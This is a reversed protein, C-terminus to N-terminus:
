LWFSSFSCKQFARLSSIKFIKIEFITQNTFSIFDNSLCEDYFFKQNKDNIFYSYYHQTKCNKCLVNKNVCPRTLNSAFYVFANFDQTNDHILENNCTKCYILSTKFPKVPTNTSLTINSIKRDIENIKSLFEIPFNNQFNTQLKDRFFVFENQSLRKNTIKEILDIIENENDLYNFRLYLYAAAHFHNIENFPFLSSNQLHNMSLTELIYRIKSNM